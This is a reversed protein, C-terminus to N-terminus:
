RVEKKQYHLCSGLPMTTPIDCGSCCYEQRGYRCDWCFIVAEVGAVESYVVGQFRVRRFLPYSGFFGCGCGLNDGPNFGVDCVGSEGLGGWGLSL